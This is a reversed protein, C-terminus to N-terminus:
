NPWRGFEAKGSEAINGDLYPYSSVAFYFITGDNINLANFSEISDQPAYEDTSITYKETQGAKKQITPTPTSSGGKYYCRKYLEYEHKKYWLNYGELDDENDGWFVLDLDSISLGYPAQLAKDIAYIGCGWLTILILCVSTSIFTIIKIKFSFLNGPKV